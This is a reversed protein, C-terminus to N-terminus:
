QRSQIESTQEESRYGCKLCCIENDAVVKRGLWAEDAPSGVRDVVGCFEHGPIIPFDVPHRGRLTEVDTMCIAAVHIRIRAWGAAPEPAAVEVLRLKGPQDFQIARM